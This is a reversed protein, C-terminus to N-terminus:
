IVIEELTYPPDYLDTVEKVPNFTFLPMEVFITNWDYMAGNWLGPYELVKVKKGEISKYTIIGAQENQFKKLDFKKGQYDQTCCVINVPNFYTASQYIQKQRKETLDLQTSEVIQLALSGDAQKVWFPGGGERVGRNIVMGCVRIPRNLKNFITTKLSAFDGQLVAEPLLCCLTNKLFAIIPDLQEKRHLSPLVRLYQFITERVQLLYSALAKQHLSHSKMSSDRAVNDINKIFIMDASISNLEDLLTGHGGPRFLLEGTKTRFPVGSEDAVITDTYAAQYALHIVYKVYFAKAYTAEVQQIHAEVAQTHEKLITLHLYVLDGKGVDTYAGEVLHEELATRVKNKYAHFPVLAKPLVGLGLGEKFLLKKLIFTYAKQEILEDLTYGTLLDCLPKYFPLYPLLRMLLHAEHERSKATQAELLGNYLDYWPQFLRSGAGSAPIFKVVKAKSSWREYNRAQKEVEEIVQIGDKLTCAREVHIPPIGEKLQRLQQSVKEISLGRKLIAAQDKKSFHKDM